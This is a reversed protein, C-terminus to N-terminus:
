VSSNNYIMSKDNNNNSIHKDRVSGELNNYIVASNNEDSNTFSNYIVENNNPEGSNVFSNYIIDGDSTTNLIRRQQINRLSQATNNLKTFYEEFNPPDPNKEKEKEKKKEKEKEKMLSKRKRFYHFAAYAGVCGVFPIIMLFVWFYLLRSDSNDASSSSLASETFISNSFRSTETRSTTLIALTFSSNSQIESLLTAPPQSSTTSDQSSTLLVSNSSTSTSTTAAVEYEVSIGVCSLFLTIDTGVFNQVQLFMGFLPSNVSSANWTNGLMNGDQM